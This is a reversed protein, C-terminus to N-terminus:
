NRTVAHECCRTSGRRSPDDPCRAFSTTSRDLLRSFVRGLYITEHDTSPILRGSAIGNAEYRFAASSDHRSFVRESARVFHRPFGKRHFRSIFRARTACTRTGVRSDGHQLLLRKIFRRKHALADRPLVTAKKSGAATATFRGLALARPPPSRLNGSLRAKPCTTKLEARRSRNTRRKSDAGGDAAGRTFRLRTVV